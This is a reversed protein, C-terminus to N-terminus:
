SIFNFNVSNQVRWHKGASKMGENGDRWTLLVSFKTNKIKKSENAKVMKRM